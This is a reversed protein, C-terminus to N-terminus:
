LTASTPANVLFHPASIIVVGDDPDSGSYAYAPNFTTDNQPPNTLASAYSAGKLGDNLGTFPGQADKAALDIM